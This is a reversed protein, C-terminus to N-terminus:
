SASFRSYYRQNVKIGTIQSHFVIGAATGKNILSPGQRLGHILQNLSGQDEGSIQTHESGGGGSDGCLGGILLTDGTARQM